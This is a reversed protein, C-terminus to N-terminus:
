VASRMVHHPDVPADAAIVNHKYIVSIGVKAVGGRHYGTIEQV